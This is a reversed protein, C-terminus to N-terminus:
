DDERIVTVEKKETDYTLTVKEQASEVPDSKKRTYVRSRPESSALIWGEKTAALDVVGFYIAATGFSSPFAFSYYNTDLNFRIGRFGTRGALFPSIEPYKALDREMPKVNESNYLLGVVAFLAVLVLTLIKAARKM